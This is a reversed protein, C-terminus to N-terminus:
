KKCKILLWNKEVDLSFEKTMLQNLLGVVKLDNIPLDTKMDYKWDNGIRFQLRNGLFDDIDWEVSEKPVEVIIFNKWTKM